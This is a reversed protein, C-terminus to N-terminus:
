ASVANAGMLRFKTKKATRAQGRGDVYPADEVRISLQANVLEGEAIPGAEPDVTATVISGSEADHLEVFEVLTGDAHAIVRDAAGEARLVAARDPSTYSDRRLVRLPSTNALL